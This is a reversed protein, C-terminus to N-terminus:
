LLNFTCERGTRFCNPSLRPLKIETAGDAFPLVQCGARQTIRNKGCAATDVGSRKQSSRCARFGTTGSGRRAPLRVMTWPQPPTKMGGDLDIPTAGIQGERHVQGSVPKVCYSITKKHVDLGIYYMIYYMLTRYSGGHNNESAVNGNLEAKKYV